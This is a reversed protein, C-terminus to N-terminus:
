CRYPCQVATLYIAASDANLHFRSYPVAAAISCDCESIGAGPAGYLSAYVAMEVGCAQRQLCPEHNVPKDWRSCCGYLLHNGRSGPVTYLPLDDLVMGGM